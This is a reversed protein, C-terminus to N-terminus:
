AFFIQYMKQHYCHYHSFLKKSLYINALSALMLDAFLEKQGTDLQMARASYCRMQSGASLQICPFNFITSSSQLHFTHTPFCDSLFRASTGQLRWTFGVSDQISIFISWQEQWVASEHFVSAPIISGSENRSSKKSPQSQSASQNQLCNVAVLAENLKCKITDCKEIWHKESAKM